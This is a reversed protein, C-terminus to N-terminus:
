DLALKTFILETVTTAYIEIQTKWMGQGICACDTWTNGKESKPSASFKVYSGLQFKAKKQIKRGIRICKTIHPTWLMLEAIKLKTSIQAISAICSKLAYILKQGIKWMKRAIKIFHEEAHTWFIDYTFALETPVPATFAM